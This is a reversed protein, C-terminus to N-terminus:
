HSDRIRGPNSPFPSSCHVFGPTGASLRADCRFPAEPFSQPASVYAAQYQEQKSDPGEKPVHGCHPFARGMRSCASKEVALQIKRVKDEDSTM